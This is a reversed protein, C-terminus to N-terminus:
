WLWCECRRERRTSRAIAKDIIRRLKMRRPSRNRQGYTDLACLRAVLEDAEIHLSHSLM